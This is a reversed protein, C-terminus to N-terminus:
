CTGEAICPDWCNYTDYCERSAALCKRKCGTFFSIFPKCHSECTNRTEDCALCEKAQPLAGLSGSGYLAVFDAHAAVFAAKFKADYDASNFYKNSKKSCQNKETILAFFRDLAQLTTNTAKAPDVLVVAANAASSAAVLLVLAAAAAVLVRPAM